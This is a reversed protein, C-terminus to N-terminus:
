ILRELEYQIHRSYKKKSIVKYDPTLPDDISLATGETIESSLDTMMNKIYALRLGYMEAQIKGTAPWIEADIKKCPKYAINIGGESDKVTEPEYTQYERIQNKRM